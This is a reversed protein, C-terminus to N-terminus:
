WSAVLDSAERRDAAAAAMLDPHVPLRLAAGLLALGAVRSSAAAATALAVAAGMSHGVLIAAPVGLAALLRDVWGALADISSHPPGATAGHGPLDPALVARGRHAFYRAPFNWVTHDMGAGHLFLVARGAPDFGAGGTGAFVEGGDVTLRM